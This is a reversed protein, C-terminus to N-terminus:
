YTDYRKTLELHDGTKIFDALPTNDGWSIRMRQGKENSLEVSPAVSKDMNLALRELKVGTEISKRAEDFNKPKMQREAIAEMGLGQLVRGIKAIAENRQTLLNITKSETLKLAAQHVQLKKATWKQEAAKQRVYDVHIGFHKATDALTTSENAIFFTYVADWNIHAM